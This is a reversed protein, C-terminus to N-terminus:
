KMSKEKDAYKAALMSIINLTLINHEVLKAMFIALSEAMKPIDKSLEEACGVIDELIEVIATLPVWKKAIMEHILNAAFNFSGATNELTVLILDKVM